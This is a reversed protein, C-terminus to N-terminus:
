GSIKFKFTLSSKPLLQPNISYTGGDKSLINKKTLANFTNNLHAASIKLGNVIEKRTETSFLLTSAYPEIVGDAVYTAYKSVLSTAVELQKETLRQNTLYIRLYSTVVQQQTGSINIVLNDKGLPAM